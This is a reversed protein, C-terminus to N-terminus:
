RRPDIEIVTDNFRGVLRDMEDELSRALPAELLREVLGGGPLRVAVAYRHRVLCGEDLEDVEIRASWRLLQRALWRGTQEYDISQWRKVTIRLRQRPLRVAGIRQDVELEGGFPGPLRGYTAAIKDDLRQYEEIDLCLRIVQRPSADVIRSM